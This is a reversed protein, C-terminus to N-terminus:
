ESCLSSDKITSISNTSWFIEGAPQFSLFTLELMKAPLRAQSVGLPEFLILVLFLTHLTHIRDFQNITVFDHLRSPTFISASFHIGVNQDFV